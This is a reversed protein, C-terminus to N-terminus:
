IASASWNSCSATTRVATASIVPAVSAQPQTPLKGRREYRWLLLSSGSNFNSRGCCVQWRAAAGDTLNSILRLAVHFHWACVATVTPEAALSAADNLTVPRLHRTMFYRCVRAWRHTTRAIRPGCACNGLGARVGRQVGASLRRSRVPVRHRWVPVRGSLALLLVAAIAASALLLVFYAVLWRQLEV